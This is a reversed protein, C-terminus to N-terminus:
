KKKKLNGGRRKFLYWKKNPQLLPSNHRAWKEALALPSNHRGSNPSNNFVVQMQQVTGANDTVETTQSSTKENIYTIMHNKIDEETTYHNFIAILGDDDDFLLDKLADRQTSDIDKSQHLDQIILLCPEYDM